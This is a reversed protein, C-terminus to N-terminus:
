QLVIKDDRSENIKIILEEKDQQIREKTAKKSSNKSIGMPKQNQQKKFFDSEVQDLFEIAEEDDIIQWTPHGGNNFFSIYYRHHSTHKNQKIHQKHTVKNEHKL